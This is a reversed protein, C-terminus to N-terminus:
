PRYVTITDAPGNPVYAHDGNGDTLRWRITYPSSANVLDGAVPTFYAEGPDTGQDAVRIQGSPIETEETDGHGRLILTVTLGTLTIPSGDARLMFPGLEQTWGEVVDLIKAM